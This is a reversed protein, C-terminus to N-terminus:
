IEAAALRARRQERREVVTSLLLSAEFLLYLPVTELVLTIADGPLFAVRQEADCAASTGGHVHRVAQVADRLHHDRVLGVAAARV